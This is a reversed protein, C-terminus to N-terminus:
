HQGQLIDGGMGNHGIDITERSAGLQIIGELICAQRGPYDKGCDIGIDDFGIDPQSEADPNNGIQGNLGPIIVKNRQIRAMQKGVTRGIQAEAPFCVQTTIHVVENLHKSRMQGAVPHLFGNAVVIM